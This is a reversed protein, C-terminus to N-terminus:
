TLSSQLTPFPALSTLPLQSHSVPSCPVDLFCEGTYHKGQHGGLSGNTWLSGLTTASAYSRMFSSSYPYLLGQALPWASDLYGSPPVLANSAVCGSRPSNCGTPPFFCLNLRDPRGEKRQVGTHLYYTCPLVSPHSPPYIHSKSTKNCRRMWAM